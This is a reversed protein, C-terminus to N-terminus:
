ASTPPRVRDTAGPTTMARFFGIGVWLFRFNMIDVNISNVLLGLGGAAIALAVDGGPAPGSAARRAAVACASVLLVLPVFGALGTEALRGFPTSHANVRQYPSFLRGENYAREAEFPFAGLGIGTWPRRRFANWEVKKIVYYSIPNYSM